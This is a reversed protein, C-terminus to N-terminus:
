RAVAPDGRGRPGLAHPGSVLALLDDIVREYARAMAQGSFRDAVHQRCRDRDIEGLRGVAEVLGDVTARIFGTEGDVVM